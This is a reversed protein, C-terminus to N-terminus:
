GLLIRRLDDMTEAIAVAGAGALEERTGTNGYLVGVCPIGLEAAAYVDLDRDGVMVAEEASVGLQALAQEIAGVKTAALDSMKGVIADFAPVLGNDGVQRMVLPHRKSSAIALLRGADRLESLLEAMGPFAPWASVDRSAYLDRYRLTVEMADEDSLGYVQAYAQPFPPGVLRKLDGLEDEALGFGLLVERATTTIGVLTDAVTGDWDFVIARRSSLGM